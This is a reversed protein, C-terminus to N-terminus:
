MKSCLRRSMTRHNKPPTKRPRRLSKDLDIQAAPNPGRKSSKTLHNAKVDEIFTSTGNRWTVKLNMGSKAPGTAFVRMPDDGSLYRGGSIVEQSQHPVAGGRLEIKAGIGQVNPAKGRARVAVRGASSDNRYLGAAQRM